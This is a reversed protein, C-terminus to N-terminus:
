DLVDSALKVINDFNSTYVFLAAKGTMIKVFTLPRANIGGFGIIVSMRGSSRRRPGESQKLFATLTTWYGCGPTDAAFHSVSHTAAVQHREHVHREVEDLQRM